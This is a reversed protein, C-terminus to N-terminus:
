RRSRSGTEIKIDGRESGAYRLSGDAGPPKAFEGRGIQALLDHVVTEQAAMDEQYFQLPLEMLYAVLAQGGRGIGVVTCVPRGEEDHVQEYGAERARIIRGPEDNFWHRHFGERSPYNLKQDWTGFPRRTFPKRTQRPLTDVSQYAPEAQPEGGLQREIEARRRDEDADRRSQATTALEELTPAAEKTPLLRGTVPDRPRDM